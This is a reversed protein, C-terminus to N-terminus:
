YLAFSAYGVVKEKHDCYDGSNGKKILQLQWTNERCFLLFGNIANCGCADIPQLCPELALINGITEADILQAEAAQHYHSLDSSIVFLTDPADVYLSLIADITDPDCAGVVIPVLTFAKLCYQLFPLQVELSHEWRHAEDFESVLGLSLLRECAPRDIDINGLPTSFADHSAIACGQFAVSHSPGMLIVRKIRAAAHLLCAYGHAAIDGSYCYGAHPVILAKPVMDPPTLKAFLSALESRLAEATEPYFHGAVVPLRCKM